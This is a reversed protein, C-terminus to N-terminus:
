AYIYSQVKSKNAGKETKQKEEEGRGDTRKAIRITRERGIYIKYLVHFLFQPVKDEEVNGEKERDGKEKRLTEM